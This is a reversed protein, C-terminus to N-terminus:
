WFMFGSCTYYSLHPCVWGAWDFPQAAKSSSANPVPPKVDGALDMPFDVESYTANVAQGGVEDNDVEATEDPQTHTPPRVSGILPQGLDQEFVSVPVKGKSNKPPAM